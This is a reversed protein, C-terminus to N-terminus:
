NEFFSWDIEEEKEWNGTENAVWTDTIQFTDDDIKTVKFTGNYSTTDTIIVWNGTFLGHDTSTMNVKGGGPNATSAIVGESAEQVLGFQQVMLETPMLYSAGKYLSGQENSHIPGEFARVGYTAGTGKDLVLFYCAKFMAETLLNRMTEGYLVVNFTLKHPYQNHVQYHPQGWIDVESTLKPFVVMYSDTLVNLELDEYYFYSASISDYEPLEDGCTLRGTLPELDFNVIFESAAGITGLLRINKTSVPINDFWWTDTETGDKTLAEATERACGWYIYIRCGDAQTTDWAM